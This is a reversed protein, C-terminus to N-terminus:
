QPLGNNNMREGIIRGDRVAFIRDFGEVM